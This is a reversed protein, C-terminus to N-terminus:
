GQEKKAAMNAQYFPSHKLWKRRIVPRAILNLYRRYGLSAKRDRLFDRYTHQQYNLLRQSEETDLWDLSSPITGFAEDPFKGLGSAEMSGGIYDRYYMQDKSGGGILLVKGWVEDCTVANARALGVDKSHVFEMRSDPSLFFVMPNFKLEVPPVAGFRLIAWGLGSGKIMEECEVKHQTYNITPNVPDSAKRPPPQDQTPGFVTCSSAFVIKPSSSVSKMAEVLNGTGGVNIERSFEPNVESEVPIIFALHIAVDRDEVAKTVDYPNRIDGWVVDIKGEFSRAVKENHESKIDFCRVDHGQKLLNKLANIGINGFPGTLLVRM